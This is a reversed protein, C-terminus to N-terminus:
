GEQTWINEENNLKWVDEGLTYFALKLDMFAVSWVAKHGVDQDVSSTIRM